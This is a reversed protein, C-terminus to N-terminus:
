SPPPDVYDPKVLGFRVLARRILHVEDDTLTRTVLIVTIYVAAGVAIPIPLFMGRLPWIAALMVAGALLIKAIRAMSAPDVITPAIKWIGLVLMVSETVVYALAGGIAGNGYREDTWPVLVLDLPISAVIACIMLGNWFTQRGTASALGGLMITCFMLITVAGYVTLVQGSERFEPGYLLVAVQDAVVITGFGIPVSLLLLSSFAQRVLRDLGPPDTVHLRGFRPLLATLMVTPVFLLTGFLTDATSYWGLVEADVLASIVVTDIQLYITLVAGLIFFPMSARVIRPIERFPSAFSVRGFKLFAVWCWALVTMPGLMGVAAVAVVGGDLVVVAIVAVTYILKSVVSATAPYSMQELGALRPAFSTPSGTSCRSLVLCRSYSPRAAAPVHSCQSLRSCSCIGVFVILRIVVITGMVWTGRERNRAIELTLYTASGLGMLLQLMTWIAAPLRLQGVGEPGLHRPLVVSVVMALLWTIVQASFLHALNRLLSPRSREVEESM